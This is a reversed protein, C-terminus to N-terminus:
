DKDLYIDRGHKHKADSSSEWVDNDPITELMLWGVVVVCVLLFFFAEMMTLGGWHGSVIGAQQKSNRM